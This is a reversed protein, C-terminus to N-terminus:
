SLCSLSFFTDSMNQRDPFPTGYPIHEPSCWSTPPSVVHYTFEHYATHTKISSVAAALSICCKRNGTETQSDGTHDVCKSKFTKHDLLFVNFLMAEWRRWTRMSSTSFATNTKPKGGDKWMTMGLVGACQLSPHFVPYHIVSAWCVFIVNFPFNRFLPFTDCQNKWLIAPLARPTRLFHNKRKLTNSSKSFLLFCLQIIKGKGALFNEFYEEWTGPAPLAKNMRQFHYYSVM